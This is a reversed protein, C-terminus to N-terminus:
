QATLTGAAITTGTSGGSAPLVKADSVSLSLTTNQAITTSQLQLAFRALVGDLAKANGQGKQAISVRLTSGDLVAKFLKPDAGLDFV